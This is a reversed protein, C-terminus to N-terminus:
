RGVALIRRVFQDLDQATIKSSCRLTMGGSTGSRKRDVRRWCGLAHPAWAALPTADRRHPGSSRSRAKRQGHRAVAQLLPRRLPLPCLLAEVTSRFFAPWRSAEGDAVRRRESSDYPHSQHHAVKELAMCAGFHTPITDSSETSHRRVRGVCLESTEVAIRNPM